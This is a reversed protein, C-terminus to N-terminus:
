ESEAAAFFRELAGAMASVGTEAPTIIQTFGLAKARAATVSGLCAAPLRRAHPASCRQVFYGVASPSVFTLADIMGDAFMGPVDDGGVGCVTEYAVVATVDAGRSRLIDAPADSAIASHPLLVRHNPTLPLSRALSEGSRSEPVFDASRGLETQLAADTAEGVAAIRLQTWDPQIKRARLRSSLASVANASTFLLTDYRALDRLQSDIADADAPPQIAICPYRIAIAGRERLIQILPAAQHEARTVVVRKGQLASTMTM